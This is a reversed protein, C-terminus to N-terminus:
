EVEYGIDDMTLYNRTPQPNILAQQMQRAYYDKAGGPMYFNQYRQLETTGTKGLWKNLDRSTELKLKKHENDMQSMLYNYMQLNEAANQPNRNTDTVIARLRTEINRQTVSSASISGAMEGAINSRAGAIFGSLAGLFVGLKAGAVAGGVTGVGPAVASGLAAGGLAFAAAMGSSGLLGGVVGAGAAQGLDIPTAQAEMMMAPDGVQMALAQGERMLQEHQLRQEQAQAAGMGGVSAFERQQQEKSVVNGFKDIVQNPNAKSIREREEQSLEKPQQVEGSGGKVQQPGAFQGTQRPFVAPSQFLPDYNISEKEEKKKKKMWPPTGTTVKDMIKKLAM